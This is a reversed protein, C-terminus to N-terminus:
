IREATRSQFARSYYFKIILIGALILSRVLIVDPIHFMYTKNLIYLHDKKKYFHYKVKFFAAILSLTLAYTVEYAIILISM